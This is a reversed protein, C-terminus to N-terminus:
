IQSLPRSIDVIGGFIDNSRAKLECILLFIKWGPYFEVPVKSSKEFDKKAMQVGSELLHMTMTKKSGIYKRRGFIASIIQNSLYIIM